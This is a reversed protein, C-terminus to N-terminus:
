SCSVDRMGDKTEVLAIFAGVVNDPVWTKV